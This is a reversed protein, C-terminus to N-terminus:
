IVLYKHWLESEKAVSTASLYESDATRVNVKFTINRGQESEIILKHNYDYLKLLNAKITVSFGKEVLQGMSMLNSKMGPVYWVNQIVAAKGNNLIIRVNGMGEANLYKDGDCIIKTSKRSDFDVLLKKNGNLHNSFGTDIYWWESSNMNNSEFALLIVPKDDSM